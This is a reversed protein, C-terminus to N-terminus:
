FVRNIFKRKKKWNNEKNKTGTRTTVSRARLFREEMCSDNAENM